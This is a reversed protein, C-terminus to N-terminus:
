KVAFTATAAKGTAVETAVVTYTGKPDNFAVPIAITAAKGDAVLVDDLWDAMKGDPLKVQVRAAQAGNRLGPALKAEVVTGPAVAAKDVSVALPALPQPSLVFFQARYPTIGLSLSQVKGLDKRSKLDYAQLAKGLGIKAPEAEGAHRFFSVIETDGSRWRTVEVN